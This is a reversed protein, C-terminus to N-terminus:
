PTMANVVSIRSAFVALISLGCTIILVGGVVSGYLYAVIPTTLRRLAWYFLVDCILVVGAAPIALWWFMILWRSLSLLAQFSYPMKVQLDHFADAFSPVVFVCAVFLLMLVLGHYVGHLAAGIWLLEGEAKGGAARKLVKKFFYVAAGVPGTVLIVVLLPANGRAGQDGETHMMCDVLMFVWFGGVAVGAVLGLLAFFVAGEKWAARFM